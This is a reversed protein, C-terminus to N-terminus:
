KTLSVRRAKIQLEKRVCVKVECLAEGPGQM